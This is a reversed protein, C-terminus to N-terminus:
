KPASHILLASIEVFGKTKSKNRTPTVTCDASDREGAIGRPVEVLLAFELLAFWPRDRRKWSAAEDTDEQNRDNETQPHRVRDNDETDPCEACQLQTRPHNMRRNHAYSCSMAAIEGKRESLIPVRQRWGDQDRQSSCLVVPQREPLDSPWLLLKEAPSTGVSRKSRVCRADRRSGPHNQQNKGRSPWCIMRHAARLCYTSRLM